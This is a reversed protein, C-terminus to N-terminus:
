LHDLRIAKQFRDLSYIHLSSTSLKNAPLVLLRWSKIDLIFLQGYYTWSILGAMIASAKDIYYVGNLRWNTFDLMHLSHSNLLHTRIDLPPRKPFVIREVLYSLLICIVAVLADEITGAFNGIEIVGSTCILGFDMDVYQCERELKAITELPSLLSWIAIILWTSLSSKYAYHATYQQTVFSFLDNLVYVLWTGESAALITQYAPLQQSTIYTAQNNLTLYVPATNLMWIATISRVTLITRGAWTHGVIRNLEFLNAGEISGKLIITYIAILGAVFVLIWTIYFSFGLFISAFSIPIETSDATFTILSDHFTMTVISATDGQFDVVERVGTTWDFLLCWGYFTWFSDTPELLNIQYLSALSPESVTSYYQISTINIARTVDYAAKVQATISYIINRYRQIFNLTFNLNAACTAGACVDLDCIGQLDNSKVGYTMDLALMAFLLQLKSASIFEIFLAYCVFSSGFGSYLGITASESPVDNGCMINGGNSLLSSNNLLFPPVECIRSKPPIAIFDSQAM